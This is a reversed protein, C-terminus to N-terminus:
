DALYLSLIQLSVQIYVTMEADDAEALWAILQDSNDFDFIALLQIMWPQDDLPGPSQLSEGGPGGSAAGGCTSGFNLFVELLDLINVVGDGSCQPALDCPGGPQGYALQVEILDLINVVGDPFGGNGACDGPCDSHSEFSGMDVVSFSPPLHQLFLIRHHLDLDPTKETTDGDDDVDQDDAPVLTADPNGMDRCPSACTLRFNGNAPDQFLPDADINNSGAGTWGGQVDSYSVVANGTADDIEEEALDGWLVCNRVFLSGGM